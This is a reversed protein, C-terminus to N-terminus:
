TNQLITSLKKEYMPPMYQTEICIRNTKGMTTRLTPNEILTMISQAINTYNGPSVFLAHQGSTLMEELAGVSTTIVPLGYAMAELVTLGCGESYTPLIFIDANRLFMEKQKGEIYGLLQIQKELHHESIFTRCMTYGGHPDPIYTINREIDVPQGCLIFKTSPYRSLVIEAAQVLDFAGKAKSIYGIFLVTLEKGNKQLLTTTDPYQTPVCNYLTVIKSPDVCHYFQPKFKEALVILTNVTHLVRRMYWQYAKNQSTYSKEFDGAHFHVCIKKLCLKTLLVFCSDRLFGFTNQALSMYVLYPRVTALTIVFRLLNSLTTRITTYSLKGREQAHATTKLYFTHVDFQERILASHAAIEMMQVVGHYPPHAYSVILLKKKKM